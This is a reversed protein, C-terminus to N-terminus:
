EIPTESPRGWILGQPDFGAAIKPKVIEFYPSLDFDRPAFLSHHRIHLIERRIEGVEDLTVEPLIPYRLRHFAQAILSSCIARTPDGSGFALMRRRWRVPVPPTPFFYRMLDLINRMDYRLGIREVMFGVVEAREAATLGAARCIRTNYSAYKSLPVAVCGEGLNVEVLRPRESGDAPAPLANGVFVAAHSWTSQTLYKIANSIHARGEVLLVDGPRLARFLTEYDSPTYPRYGSSPRNLKRALARGLMDLGRDLATNRATTM